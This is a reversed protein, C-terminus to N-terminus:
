MGKIKWVIAEYKSAAFEQTTMLLCTDADLRQISSPWPYTLGTLKMLDIAGVYKLSKDFFFLTRLNGDLVAFGGDKTEIFGHAWGMAGGAGLQKGESSYFMLQKGSYDYVVVGVMSRTANEPKLKNKAISGGVYVRNKGIFITSIDKLPCKRKADDKLNALPPWVASCAQNAAFKAMDIKVVDNNMWSGLGWKGTPDVALKKASLRDPNGKGDYVLGKKADIVVPGFFPDTYLKGGALVLNDGDANLPKGGFATKDAKLANGSLTWGEMTGDKRETYLKGGMYVMGPMGFAGDVFLSPEFKVMEASLKIPGTSQPAPKIDKKDMVAFAASAFVLVAAAVVACIKVTRKM